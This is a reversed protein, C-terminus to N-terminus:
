RRLRESIAHSLERVPQDVLDGGTLDHLARGGDHLLQHLVREVGARAPYPHLDSAAAPVPDRDGVVAAAHAGGVGAHRKPTVGGAFDGREVIQLLDLGVAEAAFGERCDCRDRPQAQAAPEPTGRLGELQTDLGALHPVLAGRAGGLAGADLDGVEKGGDRGAPLEQFGDGGLPAV